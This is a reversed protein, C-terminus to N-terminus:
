IKRAGLAEAAKELADLKDSDIKFSVTRTFSEGMIAEYLLAVNIMDRANLPGYPEPGQWVAYGFAEFPHRADDPLIYEGREDEFDVRFDDIYFESPWNNCYFDRWEAGTIEDFNGYKPEISGDMLGLLRHLWAPKGDIIDTM